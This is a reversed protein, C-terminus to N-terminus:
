QRFQGSDKRRHKLGAHVSSLRSKRQDSSAHLTWMSCGTDIGRNQSCREESSEISLWGNRPRIAVTVDETFVSVPIEIADPVIDGFVAEIRCVSPDGLQKSGKACDAFGGTDAVLTLIESRQRDQESRDARVVRERNHSREYDRLEEGSSM